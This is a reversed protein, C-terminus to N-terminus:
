TRLLLLEVDDDVARTRIQCGLRTRPDATPVRLTITERERDSPPDLGAEGRVVVLACIGCEGSRCSFLLPASSEDCLDMLREPSAAEVDHHSGALTRLTLRLM